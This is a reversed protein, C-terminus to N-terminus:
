GKAKPTAQVINIRKLNSTFNVEGVADEPSKPGPLKRLRSQPIQGSVLLFESRVQHGDSPSAVRFETHTLLTLSCPRRLM